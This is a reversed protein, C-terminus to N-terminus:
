IKPTTPETNHISDIEVETQQVLVAFSNPTIGHGYKIAYEKTFQAGYYLIAASYYVWALLIILSGAAGYATATKNVSLYLSIGYKGIMFLIATFIAGGLIDKFRIKADPLFAFICGFLLTIILFTLGVNIWGLLEIHIKEFFPNNLLTQIHESIINIVSSILLSILLLLSLVIVMLFSLLRNILIKIWDKNPKVKLKWIANISSQIDIFITTSTIVLTIIGIILGINSKNQTSIQEIAQEILKSIDTGAIANLEEFVVKTATGTHDLQNNYLLGLAWIVMIILPGISFVTYYALSASMKMCRDAAFNNGARILLQVFSKLKEVLSVKLQYKKKDSM